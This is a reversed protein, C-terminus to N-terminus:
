QIHAETYSQETKRKSLSETMANFFYIRNGRCLVVVAQFTHPLDKEQKWQEVLMFDAQAISHLLPLPARKMGGRETM